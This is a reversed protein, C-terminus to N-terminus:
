CKHRCSTEKPYKEEITKCVNESFDIIKECIYICASLMKSTNIQNFIYKSVYKYEKSSLYSSSNNEM